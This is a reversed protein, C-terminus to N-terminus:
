AAEATVTLVVGLAEAAREVQAWQSAHCLDLVRRVARDDMGLREALLRQTVGQRRMAVHLALKATVLGPLRCWVEGEQPPSAEPIFGTRHIMDDLVAVLADVAHHAADDPDDGFTTVPPLDRCTVLLTDNDDPELAIAYGTPVTLLTPM